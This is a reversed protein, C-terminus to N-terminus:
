QDQSRWLCRDGQIELGDVAVSFPVCHQEGLHLPYPSFDIEIVAGDLRAFKGAVPAVDLGNVSVTPMQERQVPCAFDAPTDAVEGM